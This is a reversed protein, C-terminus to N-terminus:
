FNVQHILSLDSNGCPSGGIQDSSDAENTRINCHELDLPTLSKNSADKEMANQVSPIPNVFATMSAKTRTLGGGNLM